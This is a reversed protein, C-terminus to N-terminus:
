VTPELGLGTRCHPDGVARDADRHAQLVHAVQQGVEVVRDLPGGGGGASGATLTAAMLSTMETCRSTGAGGSGIKSRSASGAPCAAISPPPVTVPARLPPRRSARPSRKPMSM